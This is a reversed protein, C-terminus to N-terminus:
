SSMTVLCAQHCCRCTQRTLLNGISSYNPHHLGPAAGDFFAVTRHRWSKELLLLLRSRGKSSMIAKLLLFNTLNRRKIPSGDYACEMAKANSVLGGVSRVAPSPRMAGIDADAVLGAAQLPDPSFCRVYPLRVDDPVFM